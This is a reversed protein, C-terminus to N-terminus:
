LTFLADKDSSDGIFRNGASDEISGYTLFTGGPLEVRGQGPTVSVLTAHPNSALSTGASTSAGDGAPEKPTAGPSSTNAADSEHDARLTQMTENLLRDVTNRAPHEHTHKNRLDILFLHAAKSRIAKRKDIEDLDLVHGTGPPTEFASLQIIRTLYDSNKYNVRADTMCTEYGNRDNSELALLIPVFNDCLKNQHDPKLTNRNGECSLVFKNYIKYICSLAEQFLAFDENQPFIHFIHPRHYEGATGDDNTNTLPYRGREGFLDAGNEVATCILAAPNEACTDIFTFIEAAGPRVEHSGLTGSQILAIMDGQIDGISAASDDSVTVATSADEGGSLQRWEAYLAMLRVRAEERKHIAELTKTFAALDKDYRKIMLSAIREFVQDSNNERLTTVFLNIVSVVDEPELKDDCVTLFRQIWHIGHPNLDSFNLPFNRKKPDDSQRRKEEVTSILADIEDEKGSVIAAMFKALKWVDGYKSEAGGSLEGFKMDHLINFLCFLAQIRPDANLSNARYVKILDTLNEIPHEGFAAQLADFDGAVLAERAAVDVTEDEVTLTARAEHLSSGLLFTLYKSKEGSQHHNIRSRYYTEHDEPPTGPFVSDVIALLTSAARQMAEPYEENYTIVADLLTQYHSQTRATGTYRTHITELYGQQDGLALALLTPAFSNHLKSQHDKKLTVPIFGGIFVIDGTDKTDASQCFYEVIAHLFGMAHLYATFRESEAAPEEDATPPAFLDSPGRVFGIDSTESMEQECFLASHEISGGLGMPAFLDNGNAAARCILEPDQTARLFALLHQRASGCFADRGNDIVRAGARLLKLIRAGTDSSPEIGQHGNLIRLADNKQQETLANFCADRDLFSESALHEQELTLGRFIHHSFALTLLQSSDTMTALKEFLPTAEFELGHQMLLALIELHQEFITTDVPNTSLLANFKVAIKMNLTSQPANLWPANIDAGDHEILRAVETVDVTEVADWLATQTSEYANLLSNDQTSEQQNFYQAADVVSETKLSGSISAIKRFSGNFLTNVQAILEHTPSERNSLALIMQYFATREAPSATSAATSTSTSQANPHTNLAFAKKYELDLAAYILVFANGAGGSALGATKAEVFIGQLALQIDEGADLAAKIGDIYDGRMATILPSDSILYEDLLPQIADRLLTDIHHRQANKMDPTEGQRAEHLLYTVIVEAARQLADSHEHDTTRFADVAELLVKHTSKGWMSAGHKKAMEAHYLTENNYALAFLVPGFSESVKLTHDEKLLAIPQNQTPVFLGEASETYRKYLAYLTNFAANFLDDNTPVPTTECSVFFPLIEGAEVDDLLRTPTRSM